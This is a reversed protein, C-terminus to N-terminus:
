QNSIPKRAKYVQCLAARMRAEAGVAERSRVRKVSGRTLQGLTWELANIGEPEVMIQSQLGTRRGRNGPMGKQLQDTM